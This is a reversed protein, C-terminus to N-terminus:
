GEKKDNDESGNKVGRVLGVYEGVWAKPVYVMGGNGQKMAKKIVYEKGEITIKM